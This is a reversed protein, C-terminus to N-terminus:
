ETEEVNGCNRIEYLATEKHHYAVLGTARLWKLCEGIYNEHRDLQAVISGRTERGALLLSFLEEDASNLDGPKERLTARQLM